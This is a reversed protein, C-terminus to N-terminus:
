SACPLVMKGATPLTPLRCKLAATLPTIMPLRCKLAAPAANRPAPIFGGRGPSARAVEAQIAWQKQSKRSNM